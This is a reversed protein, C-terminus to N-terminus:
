IGSQQGAVDNQVHISVWNTRSALKPLEHTLQIVTLRSEADPVRVTPDVNENNRILGGVWLPPREQGGSEFRIEIGDCSSLPRAGRCTRASYGGLEPREPPLVVTLRAAFVLPASRLRASIHRRM